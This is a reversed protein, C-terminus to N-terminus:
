GPGTSCGPYVRRRYVVRYVVQEQVVTHVGAGAGPGGLSVKNRRPAGGPVSLEM